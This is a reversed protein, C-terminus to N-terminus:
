DLIARSLSSPLTPPSLYYLPLPPNFLPQPPPTASLNHHPSPPAPAAHMYLYIHHTRAYIRVRVGTDRTVHEAIYICIYM